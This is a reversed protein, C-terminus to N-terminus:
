GCHSPPRFANMSSCDCAQRALPRGSPRGMSPHTRAYTIAADIAELPLDPNDQAIDSVSDGHAVRGLVSYVTVRTSRIVPTGGM